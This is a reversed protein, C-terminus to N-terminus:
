LEDLLPSREADTAMQQWVDAMVELQRRLAADGVIAALRDCDDQKERYVDSRKTM